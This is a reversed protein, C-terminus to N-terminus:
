FLIDEHFDVFINALVPRLPSRLAVGDVQSYTTNKFSFEVGETASRTFKLFLVELILVTGQHARYLVDTCIKWTDKFIINTYLSVIDFSEM